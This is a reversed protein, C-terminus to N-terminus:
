DNPGAHWLNWLCDRSSGFPDADELIQDFEIAESEPRKMREKTLIDSSVFSLNITHFGAKKMLGLLEEDLSAFSVGNMASLELSGREM